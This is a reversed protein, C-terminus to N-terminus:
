MGGVCLPVSYVNGNWFPPFSVSGLFALAFCSQFSAPCVGFEADGHRIDFHEEPRWTGEAKNIEVDRERERPQNWIRSAIRRPLCGMVRADAIEQPRWCLGSKVKVAEHLPREPGGHLFM